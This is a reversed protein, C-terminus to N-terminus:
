ALEESTIIKGGRKELDALAREEDGKEVEIPGVCDRLIFVELGGDIAGVASDHVCYETAVGGVYLRETGRGKLMGALDFKDFASYQEQSRVYGKRVIMGLNSQDLRPDLEAGPTLQVCHPPWPGGQDAFSIHDGPHWDQSAIVLRFRPILRNLPTFIRDGEPVPLAGGPMFDVQPDAIFLVDYDRITRM